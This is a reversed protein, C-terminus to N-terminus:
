HARAASNPDFWFEGECLYFYDLNVFQGEAAPTLKLEHSGLDLAGIRVAYLRWERSSYGFGPTPRLSFTEIFNDDLFLYYQRPKDGQFAYRLCLYVHSISRPLAFRYMLFDSVQGGWFNGLAKNGSAGQKLDLGGGSKADFEEAERLYFFRGEQSLNQVDHRLAKYVVYIPRGDRQYFTKVPLADRGYRDLALRFAEFVPFSELPPAHFVLYSNTEALVPKLHSVKEETPLYMMPVFAEEKRIKGHSLLLLQTSFGWDMLLFTEDPHQEAFAALQYIADSWAGVGGKLVFSEVYRVDVILQTLILPSAGLVLVMSRALTGHSGLRFLQCFTFAILMHPFPYVAITHHPGTAEQTLCIFVVMFGLQLLIFLVEPKRELRKLLLLVLLLPLSLVFGVPMLSGEIRPLERVVRVFRALNDYGQTKPNIVEAVSAHNVVDYVASGDLTTRFLRYRYNLASLWDHTIAERHKFTALPVAINFAILPLCGLLFAGLATLVRGPTLLQKVRRGFCLLLAPPLAAVYWIFIVKNYLGLGLLFGGIVLWRPRGEEMWRWIFYLSSAQLLLMLSVPGWDLKNAFIFTPDAALLLLTLVAANRGLLRRVLAYSVLLTILGAFIVPLRVTAPSTGFLAFVPTYLFAKLAGIYSIIMLPIGKGLVNPRWDVFTGDVNGLAANVFLTEDYELGPLDLYVLSFLLYIALAAGVWFHSLRLANKM